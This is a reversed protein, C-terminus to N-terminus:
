KAQAKLQAALEPNEKLLKAQETLNFHEGRQFPNKTVSTGGSQPKYGNEKFKGDVAEKVANNFAEAFGEINAVTTEEDSGVLFSKFASPLKKEALLDATKNNLREAKLAARDRELEQQLKNLEFEKRETESMKEKELEEAKKEADKLKKSYETRVKDTESQILKKVDEITLTSNDEDKKKTEDDNELEAKKADFEEQTIEGSELLKKLEELTM